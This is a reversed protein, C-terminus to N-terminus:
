THRCLIILISHTMGAGAFASMANHAHMAWSHMSTYPEDYGTASSMPINYPIFDHAVTTLYGHSDESEPGVPGGSLHHQHCGAHLRQILNSRLAEWKYQLHMVVVARQM